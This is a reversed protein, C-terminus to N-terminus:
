RADFRMFAAMALASFVTCFLILLSTDALASEAFIEGLSATQYRFQEITGKEETAFRKFNRDIYMWVSNKLRTDRSLGTNALETVYLELAGAPSIRVITKTLNILRNLKPTYTEFLHSNAERIQNMIRSFDRENHTARVRQLTEYIAQIATLRNEMEVRDSPPVDSMSQAVTVGMNPIVFVFLVWATLGLIMSSPSRHVLSSIFIGLATFLLVYVASGAGILGIRVWFDLGATVDPLLSVVIASTLFFLAFPVFVLTFRGLLKGVVIAPRKTGGALMLKLTGQEKEGSIADFSFLIAILALMVKIVFLVDPVTFLSFLRNISQQSSHVQIGLSSLEYLRGINADLGKAFISLPEPPLIINKAEEGKPRLVNYNEMRLQYDGYSVIISIVMLVLLLGTLVYFRYTTLNELIEKKLISIM